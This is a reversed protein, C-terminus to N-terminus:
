RATIPKKVLGKDVLEYVEEKKIRKDKLAAQIDKILSVPIAYALRATLQSPDAVIIEDVKAAANATITNGAAEVVAELWAQKAEADDGVVALSIVLFSMSEKSNGGGARCSTQTFPALENISKEIEACMAKGQDPAQASAAGLQLRAICVFLIAFKLYRM